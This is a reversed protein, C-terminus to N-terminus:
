EPQIGAQRILATWHTLQSNVYRGFAEPGAPPWVQFGIVSLKEQLDRDALVANIEHNLRQVVAPPLGAPGFIGNWSTLDFGKVTQAIPPVDPLLASGQATTLGLARVRGARIMRMGSGLDVVYMQVQGGLLDTMAQPSAKYPVGMVDLGALRKLTESAVLSTSNPTAYSLSGPHARTYALFEPLTRVPLSDPVVLAFPLEGVGAVPTFDKIPDYPLQRFLSPNASHSTNTTMFLTYGDPRAKAVYSAGMQASAGPRNDVIVPQNLRETLKQAVARAVADTGSGAAFPVVLTVPANPYAPQASLTMAALLTATACLFARWAQFRHM